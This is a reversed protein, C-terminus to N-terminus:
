CIRPLKEAYARTVRRTGGSATKMRVGIAGGAAGSAVAGATLVRGIERAERGYPHARLAALARDAQSARVAVLLKGENAMSLPDIGLLEGLARVEPRIPISEEEIELSLRRLSALECLAAALGGRTADRMFLPAAGSGILGAVLGNLPACDSALGSEFGLSERLGLITMAHDGITGTVLLSDGEALAAGSLDLGPRLAGVGATTVYVGDGHGKEVVKTDGTVIRVGAEAAAAAMSAIVRDLSELPFGEELILSSSLYLPQAGVVALDNVTGCVALKGIDGGPFFIPRVVFSDTTFALGGAIPPLLASDLGEGPEPEGPKSRLGRLGQNGLIGQIRAILEEMQTGGAGHGMAVAEIRASV